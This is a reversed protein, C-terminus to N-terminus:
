ADADLDVSNQQDRKDLVSERMEGKKREELRKEIAHKIQEESFDEKPLGYMLHLQNLIVSSKLYPMIEEFEYSTLKKAIQYYVIKGSIKDQTATVFRLGENLKEFIIYQLYIESNNMGVSFARKDSATRETGGKMGLKQPTLGWAYIIEMDIRHVEEPWNEASRLHPVLFPVDKGNEIHYTRHGYMEDADENFRRKRKQRELEEEKSLEKDLLKEAQQFNSFQQNYLMPTDVSHPMDNDTPVFHAVAGDNTGMVVKKQNTVYINPRSNQEDRLSMNRFIRQRQQSSRWATSGPSQMHGEIPYHLVTLLWKRRDLTTELRGQIYNITYETPNLIQIKRRHIRYAVYGYLMLNLLFQNIFCHIDHPIDPHMFPHNSIPTPEVKDGNKNVAITNLHQNCVENYYTNFCQKQRPCINFTELINEASIRQYSSFSPQFPLTYGNM